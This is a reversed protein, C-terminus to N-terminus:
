NKIKIRTLKELDITIGAAILVSGMEQRAPLYLKEVFLVNKEFIKDYINKNTM